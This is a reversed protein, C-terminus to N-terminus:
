RATARTASSGSSIIRRVIAVAGEEAGAGGKPQERRAAATQAANRVLEDQGRDAIQVAVAHAARIPHPRGNREFM